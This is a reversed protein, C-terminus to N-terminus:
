QDIVLEKLVDAVNVKPSPPPGLDDPYHTHTATIVEAAQLPRKM